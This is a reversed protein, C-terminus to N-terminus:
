TTTLNIQYNSQLFKIFMTFCRRNQLSSNSTFLTPALDSEVCSYQYIIESLSAQQRTASFSATTIWPRRQHSWSLLTLAAFPCWLQHVIWIDCSQFSVKWSVRKRFKRLSQLKAAGAMSFKLKGAKRQILIKQLSRRRLNNWRPTWLLSRHSFRPRGSLWWQRSSETKKDKVALSLSHCLIVAFTGMSMTSSFQPLITLTRAHRLCTMQITKRPGQARRDQLLSKSRPVLTLRASGLM